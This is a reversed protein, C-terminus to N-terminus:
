LDFDLVDEFLLIETNSHELLRHGQLWRDSLMCLHVLPVRGM